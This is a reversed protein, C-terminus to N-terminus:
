FCACVIQNGEEVVNRWFELDWWLLEDKCSLVGVEPAEVMRGGAGGCVVWGEGAGLRLVVRM